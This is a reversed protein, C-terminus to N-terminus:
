RRDLPQFHNDAMFEAVNMGLEAARAVCRARAPRGSCKSFM